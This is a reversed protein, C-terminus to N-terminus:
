AVPNIVLYKLPSNEKFKKWHIDYAHLMKLPTKDSYNLISTKTKEGNSLSVNRIQTGRHTNWFAVDNTLFICFAVLNNKNQLYREMKNIDSHFAYMADNQASQNILCVNEGYRSTDDTQRTKYKLEVFFKVGEYEFSVDVHKRSNEGSLIYPRENVIKTAGLKEAMRAFSYQFDGESLYVENYEMEDSLSKIIKNIFETM